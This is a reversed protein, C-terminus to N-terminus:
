KPSGQEDFPYPQKWHKFIERLEGSVVLKKMRQDFLEMLARGKETKGFALYLPLEAIHTSRFRRREGAAAQNLVYEVETQADIYFDVRGRELM